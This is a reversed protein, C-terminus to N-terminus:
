LRFRRKETSALRVKTGGSRAAMGQSLALAAIGGIYAYFVLWAITYFLAEVVRGIVKLRTNLERALDNEVCPYEPQLYWTKAGHGGSM